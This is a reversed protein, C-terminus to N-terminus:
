ASANTSLVLRLMNEEAMDLSTHDQARIPATPPMQANIRLIRGSIWAIMWDCRRRLTDFGSEDLREAQHLM